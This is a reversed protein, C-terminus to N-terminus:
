QCCLQRLLRAGVTKQGTVPTGSKSLCSAALWRSAPVSSDSPVPECQSALMELSVDEAYHEAFYAKVRQIAPHEWELRQPEGRDKTQSLLLQALGELLLDQQELLSASVTLRASINELILSLPTDATTHQRPAPFHTWPKEAGVIEAAVHQLWAPDVLLHSFTLEHSQCSWVEGPEIIYFAGRTIKQKTNRYQLIGMGSQVTGIVYSQAFQQCHPNTVTNGQLLELQKLPWPRWFKLRDQTANM